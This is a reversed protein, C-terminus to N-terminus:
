QLPFHLVVADRDKHACCGIHGDIVIVFVNPAMGKFYLAASLMGADQHWEELFGEKAAAHESEIGRFMKLGFGIDLCDLALM